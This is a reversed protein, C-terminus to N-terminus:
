DFIRIQVNVTEIVYNNGVAANTDPPLCGCNSGLFDIGDYSLGIPVSALRSPVRSQADPLPGTPLSFYQSAASVPPGVPVRQAFLNTSPITLACAFAIMMVHQRLIKMIVSENTFKRVLWPLPISVFSRLTAAAVM